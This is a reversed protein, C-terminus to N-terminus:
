QRVKLMFDFLHKGHGKRQETTYIFFDLLCLPMLEHQNGQLDYVFLRKRGVKLLGVLSGKGSSLFFLNLFTYSLWLCILYYNM